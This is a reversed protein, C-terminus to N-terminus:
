RNNDIRHPFATHRLRDIITFSEMFGFFFIALTLIYTVHNVISEQALYSPEVQLTASGAIGNSDAILIRFTGSTSYFAPTPNFEFEGPPFVANAPGTTYTQIGLPGAGGRPNGGSAGDYILLITDSTVPNGNISVNGKASLTVAQYAVVEHDVPTTGTVVIEGTIQGDTSTTLNSYIPITVNLDYTTQSLFQNGPQFYASTVLLAFVIDALIIMIIGLRGLWVGLGERTASM